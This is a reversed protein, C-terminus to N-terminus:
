ARTKADPPAALWETARTAYDTAPLQRQILELQERSKDQKGQLRYVDALGMRLEGLPHTGLKDVQNTQLREITQFDDLARELLPQSMSKPTNRAAPLLVAARPIRVGPYDPAIAVAEDMDRIGASWLKMGALMEQKSLLQSAQFVRAAGRWVLAEAHKPTDQLVADCKALGRKLAEEDGGFGAFFDERVLKDFREAPAQAKPAPTDDGVRTPTPESGTACFGVLGLIGFTALIARM